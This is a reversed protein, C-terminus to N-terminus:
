RRRQLRDYLEPMWGTHQEVQAIQAAGPNQVNRNEAVGNIFQTVCKRFVQSRTLDQQSCVADISDLLERPLRFGTRSNPPAKRFIRM